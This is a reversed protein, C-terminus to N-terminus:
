AGPNWLIPDGEQFLGLEVMRAKFWVRGIMIARDPDFTPGVIYTLRTGKDWRVSCVVLYPLRPDYTGKITMRPDYVKIWEDLRKQRDSM